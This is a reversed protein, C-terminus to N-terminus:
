RRFESGDETSVTLRLLRRVASRIRTNFRYHLLPNITSNGYGLWTCAIYVNLPIAFDSCSQASLLTFLPLWCLVFCVVLCLVTKLAKKHDDRGSRRATKDCSGQGGSGEWHSHQGRNKDGQLQERRGGHSQKEWNEDGEPVSLEADGASSGAKNTKRREVTPEDQYGHMREVEIVEGDERKWDERQIPIESDQARKLLCDTEDKAAETEERKVNDAERLTETAEQTRELTSDNEEKATETEVRSERKVDDAERLTEAARNEPLTEELTLWLQVDSKRPNNNLHPNTTPKDASLPRSSHSGAVPSFAVVVTDCSPTGKEASSPGNECSSPGHEYSSPGNECSSPGNKCSSPGNECSSPRNKSSSPGNECSTPEGGRSSTAGKCFSKEKECSPTGKKPTSTGKKCLPRGEDCFSTGKERSRTGKECLPARNEHQLSEKRHETETCGGGSPIREGFATPSGDHITEEEGSTARRESEEIASHGNTEGCPTNCNMQSDLRNETMCSRRCDDVYTTRQDGETCGSRAADSYGRASECNNDNEEYKVRVTNYELPLSDVLGFRTHSYKENGQRTADFAEPLRPSELGKLRIGLDTANGDGVDGCARPHGSGKLRRCQAPSRKENGQLVDDFAWTPRSRDLQRFLGHSGTKNGEGVSVFLTSRRQKLHQRTAIYILVHLGIILLLPIFFSLPVTVSLYLPNMFWVCARGTEYLELM